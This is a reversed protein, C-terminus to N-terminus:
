PEIERGTNQAALKAIHALHEDTRSVPRGKAAAEEAWQQRKRMGNRWVAVWDKMAKGTGTWYDIFEPLLADIDVSPVESRAWERMQQDIAFGKAITHARKRPSEVEENSSTTIETETETETRIQGPVQGASAAAKGSLQKARGAAGAKSRKERLEDRESTTQQHRAYDRIVYLGDRHLVLPREPHSEVLEALRSPDWLREAMSEPIDGDLDQMRSYGNMEVFTWKAEVSLPAVKPHMWFDNPFTMYLRQDRPM